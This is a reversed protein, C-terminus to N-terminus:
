VELFESTPGDDIFSILSSPVISMAFLDAGVLSETVSIMLNGILIFTSGAFLLFSLCVAFM